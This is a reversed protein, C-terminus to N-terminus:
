NHHTPTEDHPSRKNHFMPEPACALYNHHMLKTARCRTSDEQVLSQVLAWQLPLLNEVMPGSPSLGIYKKWISGWFPQKPIVTLNQHLKNHLMLYSECTRNQFAPRFRHHFLFYFNRSGRKQRPNRKGESWIHTKLGSNWIQESKFAGHFTIPVKNLNASGGCFFLESPNQHAPFPVWIALLILLVWSSFIKYPLPKISPSPKDPSELM